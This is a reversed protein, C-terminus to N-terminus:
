IAARRALLEPALIRVAGPEVLVLGEGALTRLARNVSVRTVGITEALGQQAGPLEVRTGAGAAARVLWGATRTVADGFATRVLDDQRERVQGALHALVHRRVAPVDEVVARVASAPVLLVASPVTAIWTASYGGGDLVAVKDVACPAPFEGLRLRRGDVHERTATLAGTEVVILHDAPAGCVAVVDGAAVARSTSRAALVDLRTADLSVFLPVAALPSAM